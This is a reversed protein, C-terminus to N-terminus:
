SNVVALMATVLARWLNTSVRDHEEIEVDSAEDNWTGMGGFIWAHTAASLLQLRQQSLAGDPVMEPYYATKPNEAWLQEQAKQMVSAWHELGHSLAFEGLDALAGRLDIASSRIDPTVAVADSREGTMVVDWGQRDPDDRDAFEWRWLTPAPGDSLLYWGGQEFVLRVHQSEAERLASFWGSTGDALKKLTGNSKHWVSSFSRVYKFTEDKSLVDPPVASAYDALWINARLALDVEAALVGDM